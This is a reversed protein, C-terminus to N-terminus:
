FFFFLRVRRVSEGCATDNQLKASLADHKDAGICLSSTSFLRRWTPGCGSCALENGLRASLNSTHLLIRIRGKTVEECIYLVIPASTYQAPM